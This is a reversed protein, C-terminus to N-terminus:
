SVYEEKESWNTYSVECDVAIPVYEEIRSDIMSRPIWDHLEELESKRCDLMIEDHIINVIHSEFLELNHHVAIVAHRMLDAACGQILANLAKHDDAPRLRRGFLTHIYGREKYREKVANALEVIGPRHHHYAKLLRDAEEWSCGIQRMITPRGGGYIISFNMTKGHQRMEDSIQRGPYLGKATELHPDLGDIIETALSDDGISRAMYYALLRVEIAKYDYFMFADLKPIFARKITKDSRPINQTNTPSM